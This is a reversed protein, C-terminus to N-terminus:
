MVTFMDAPHGKLTGLFTNFQAKLNDSKAPPETPSSYYWFSGDALVLVYPYFAAPALDLDQLLKYSDPAKTLNTCIGSLQKEVLWDDFKPVCDVEAGKKTPASAGKTSNAFVLLGAAIAGGILAPMLWKPQAVNAQLGQRGTMVTTQAITKSRGNATKVSWVNVESGDIHRRGLYMARHDGPTFMVTNWADDPSHNWSGQRKELQYAYGSLPRPRNANEQLM